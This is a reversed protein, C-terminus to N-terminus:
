IHSKIETLLLASTCQQADIHAQHQLAMIKTIGQKEVETLDPHWIEVIFVMRNQDSRNWAQHQFSDDFVLVKGEQWTQTKDGVKIACNEPIDLALHVTLKINSLGYHPLIETHPKLVSLFAEPANGIMQPLPLKALVSTTTPCLALLEHQYIGGKILHISSWNLSDALTDLGANGTKIGDIYPKVNLQQQYLQSLETKIAAFNDELLKVWTFQEPAYFPTSPLQPFVHYSPKQWESHYQPTQLGHFIDLFGYLRNSNSDTTPTLNAQKVLNVIAEKQQHYKKDRSITNALLSVESVLSKDNQEYAFKLEPRNIFVWEIIKASLTLSSNKLSIALLTFDLYIRNQDPNTQINKLFYKIAQQLKGQHYAQLGLNRQQILQNTIEANM